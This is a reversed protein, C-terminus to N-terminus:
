NTKQNKRIKADIAWYFFFANRWNTFSDWKSTKISDHTSAHANGTNAFVFGIAAYVNNKMVFIYVNITKLVVLLFNTPNKKTQEFGWEFDINVM